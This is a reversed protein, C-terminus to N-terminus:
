EFSYHKRVKKKIHWRCRLGLPFTVLDGKGMVTKTGDAAEVEVDGELFYCIEKTDYYWDFCSAEKEWVPWKKVGLSELQKPTPKKVEINM